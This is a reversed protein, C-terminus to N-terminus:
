NKELSRFLVYLSRNSEEPIKQFCQIEGYIKKVLFSFTDSDMKVMQRQFM